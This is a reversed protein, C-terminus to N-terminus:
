GHQARPTEPPLNPQVAHLHGLEGVELLAAGELHRGGRHLDGVAELADHHGKLAHLVELVDPVVVGHRVSLHEKLVLVLHGHEVHLLRVDGRVLEPELEGVLLSVAHEVGPQGEGREVLEELSRV